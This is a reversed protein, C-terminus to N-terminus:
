RVIEHALGLPGFLNRIRYATQELSEGDIVGVTVTSFRTADWVRGRAETAVLSFRNTEELLNQLNM